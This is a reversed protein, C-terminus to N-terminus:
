LVRRRGSPWNARTSSGAHVFTELSRPADIADGGDRWRRSLDLSTESAPARQDLCGRRALTDFVVLIGRVFFTSSMQKTTPLLAVRGSTGSTCALMSEGAANLVNTEGAEIRKVYPEVDAYTALPMRRRYAAVVDESTALADFGHAVGYATAANQALLSKLLTTQTTEWDACDRDHLHRMGAGAIRLVDFMVFQQLATGFSHEDSRERQAFRCTQVSAAAGAAASAARRLAIMSAISRRLADDRV